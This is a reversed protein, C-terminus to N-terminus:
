DTGRFFGLRKSLVPDLEPPSTISLELLLNSASVCWAEAEM